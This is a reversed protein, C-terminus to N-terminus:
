KRGAGTLRAYIDSVRSTIPTEGNILARYEAPKEAKLRQLDSVSPGDMNIPPAPSPPAAGQAPAPPAPQKPPAGPTVFAKTHGELIVKAADVDGARVALDIAMTIHPPLDGKAKAADLEEKVRAEHATFREAVPTLTAIQAELALRKEKEADHLKAFDGAERLKKEADAKEAAVRDEDAKRSERLKKLDAEIAAKHKLLADREAKLAVPDDAAQAPVASPPDQPVAAPPTTVQAAETSM